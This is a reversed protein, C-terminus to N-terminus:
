RSYTHPSHTPHPSHLRTPPTPPHYSSKLFRSRAKSDCGCNVTGDVLRDIMDPLSPVTDGGGPPVFFSSAVPVTDVFRSTCGGAWRGSAPVVCVLGCLAVGEVEIVVSDHLV